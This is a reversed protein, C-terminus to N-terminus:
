ARGRISDNLDKGVTPLVVIDRSAVQGRVLAALPETTVVVVPMGTEIAHALTAGLVCTEGLSQVLKHDVGRFRSGKGAALVVIAVSAKMEHLVKM